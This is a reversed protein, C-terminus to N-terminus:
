ALESKTLTEEWRSVAWRWVVFDRVYIILRSGATCSTGKGALMPLFDDHGGGHMYTSKVVRFILIVVSTNTASFCYIPLWLNFVIVSWSVTSTPLITTWSLFMKDWNGRGYHGVTRGVPLTLQFPITNLRQSRVSQKKQGGIWKKLLPLIHLYVRM